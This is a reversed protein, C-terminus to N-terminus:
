GSPWSHAISVPCVEKARSPQDAGRGRKFQCWSLAFRPCVSVDNVRSLVPVIRCSSLVYRKTQAFLEGKKDKGADSAKVEGVKVEEESDAM